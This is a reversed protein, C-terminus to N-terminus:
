YNRIPLNVNYNNYDVPPALTLDSSLEPDEDIIILSIFVLNTISGTFFGINTGATVCELEIEIYGKELFNSTVHFSHFMDANNFIPTGTQNTTFIIPNGNLGKTTDYTKTESSAVLRVHTIHGGINPINPIYCTNLICKANQSLKVDNLSNNLSFRMRKSNIIGNNNCSYLSADTKLLDDVGCLSLRCVQKYKTYRNM